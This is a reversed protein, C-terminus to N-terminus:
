GLHEDAPPHTLLLHTYEYLPCDNFSRFALPTLKPFFFFNICAVVHIFRSFVLYLLISIDLIPLNISLFPPTPPLFPPSFSIGAVPNIKSHHFHEPILDHHHNYLRTCIGFFCQIICKLPTSNSSIHIVTCYCVCM